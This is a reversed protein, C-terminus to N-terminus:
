KQRQYEQWTSNMESTTSSITSAMNQDKTQYAEKVAVLKDEFYRLQTIIRYCVDASTEVYTKTAKAYEGQMAKVTSAEAREKLKDTQAKVRGIYEEIANIMEDIKNANIGVVDGNAMSSVSAGVDSILNGCWSSVDDVLGRGANVVDKATNSVWTGISEFMGM